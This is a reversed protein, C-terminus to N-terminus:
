SVAAINPYGFLITHRFTHPTIKALIGAKQQWLELRRSFQRTGIRRGTTGVFVAQSVAPLKLRWKLYRTLMRITDQTLYRLQEAGGKARICMLRASLDVDSVDLGLLEGARMGTRLLMTVMVQDRFALPNKAASMTRLLRQEDTRTLGSPPPKPRYRLRLSVAPNFRIHETQCLWNCFSRLTVRVHNVAIEGREIGTPGVRAYDSILFETLMTPSLRSIAMGNNGCFAMLGRLNCAYSRITHRSCEIAELHELFQKVARQLKM